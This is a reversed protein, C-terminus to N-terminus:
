YYPKLLLKRKTTHETTSRLNLCNFFMDLIIYFKAECPAEELGFPNLVHDANEKFSARRPKGEYNPIIHFKYLWMHAQEQKTMLDQMGM